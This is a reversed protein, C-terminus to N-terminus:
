ITFKGHPPKPDPRARDPNFTFLCIAFAFLLTTM